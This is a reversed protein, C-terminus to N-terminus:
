KCINEGIKFWESAEKLNNKICYYNCIDSILRPLLNFKDSHRSKLYPKIRSLYQSYMDIDIHYEDITFSRRFYLSWIISKDGLEYNEIDYFHMACLYCVRYDVWCLDGINDAFGYNLPISKYYAELYKDLYEKDAFLLENKFEPAIESINDKFEELIRNIEKNAGDVDIYINELHNQYQSPLDNYLSFVYYKNKDMM